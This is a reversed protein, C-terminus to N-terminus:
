KVDGHWKCEGNIVRGYGFREMNDLHPCQCGKIQYWYKHWSRDLPFNWLKQLKYEIGEIQEVPNEYQEPNLLLDDIKEYTKMLLAQADEDVNNKELLTKNLITM